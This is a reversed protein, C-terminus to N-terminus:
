QPETGTKTMYETVRHQTGGTELYRQYTDISKKEDKWDEAYVDGLSLYVDTYTPNVAGAQLLARESEPFRGKKQLILGLTYHSDPNAPAYKVAQEAAILAQDLNPLM